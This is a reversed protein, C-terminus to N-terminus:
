QQELPKIDGNLKRFYVFILYAAGLISRAICASGILSARFPQQQRFLSLTCIFRACKNNLKRLKLAICINGTQTLGVLDQLRVIDEFHFAYLVEFFWILIDQELHGFVKLLADLRGM